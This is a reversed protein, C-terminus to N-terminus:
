DQNEVLHHLSLFLFSLLSYSLLCFEIETLCLEGVSHLHVLFFHLLLGLALALFGQSLLQTV